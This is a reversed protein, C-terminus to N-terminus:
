LDSINMEFTHLGDEEVTRECIQCRSHDRSITISVNPGMIVTEQTIRGQVTVSAHPKTKKTFEKLGKKKLMLTKNTAEIDDMFSKYRAIKRAHRDQTEFVADLEQDIKKLSGSLKQIDQVAQDVGLHDNSTKLDTLEKKLVTIRGQLREQEQAKETIRGYLSQDENEVLEIEDRIERLRELSAGLCTDLDSTRAEIHDNVGVRIHAPKSADTGIKGAAVGAKAAIKSAIIVGGPNQVQGSLMIGSDIIEKQIVVDGFANVKSNNIFKAYVNGVSVINADTIGDSINLDGTLNITAGEIEKATLSVGKVSFGDKVTGTVIINGNFEINGTQFDIDGNIPLEPNVTIEGMPDLHPQGGQDAHITLGDESLTTGSGAIFVPDLPEDVSIVLGAVTMGNKGPQPPTKVALLDGKDVFPIEGRDRFDMRGDELIKGPNTYDTKFAYAVSGDKGQVPIEGLAIQLEEERQGATKIWSEINQDEVIGFSINQNRLLELLGPLTILDQTEPDKIGSELRIFAQTADDSFRIRVLDELKRKKPAAEQVTEPPELVPTEPSSFVTRLTHRIINDHSTETKSDPDIGAIIQRTDAFAPEIGARDAAREFLTRTFEALKQFEGDLSEPTITIGYAQIRDDLTGPDKKQRNAERLRTSLRMKETKQDNIKERCIRDKKKLRRAIVVMQKNQHAIIRNLQEQKMDQSFRDLCYRVKEILDRDTAPTVMCAHIEAKNIARIVMDSQNSPVMLMRQTLPSISKALKLINDGEMKPLRFNSIFLHFPDDLNKKLRNLAQKSVTECVVEWGQDELLQGARERVAQDAELMLIKPASSESM